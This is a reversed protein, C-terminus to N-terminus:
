IKKGCKSCFDADQSELYGCHPCKIKIIEKSEAKAFGSDKLGSGLSHGTTKIGSHAETAYYKSMSKILTLGVLGFGIVLMLGGLVIFGMAGMRRNASEDMKSTFEDFPDQIDPDGETDLFQMFGFILLIIGLILLPIGVARMVTKQKSYDKLNIV